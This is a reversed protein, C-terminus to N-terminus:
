PAKAQTTSNDLNNKQVIIEVRRNKARGAATENSAKPQNDAYAQISVRNSLVAKQAIFFNMVSIARAASLEWNSPFQTSKEPVNDTYGAIIIDHNLEKFHQTVDKLTTQTSKSLTASGSDFLISSNFTLHIGDSAMKASVTGTLGAKAIDDQLQETTQKLQQTDLKAVLLAEKQSAAEKDDHDGGKHTAVHGMNVASDIISNGANNKDSLLTGFETRIEQFKKDDVKAMSFMVIFLALLLTMMDSYPLLWGESVEEEKKKAKKM